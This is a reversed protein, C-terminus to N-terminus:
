FGRYGRVGLGSTSGVHHIDVYSIPGLPLIVALEQKILEFSAPWTTDYDVINIKM